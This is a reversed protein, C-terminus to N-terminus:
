VHQLYFIEFFNTLRSSSSILFLINLFIIGTFFGNDDESKLPFNASKWTESNKEPIQLKLFVKLANREESEGNSYFIMSKIEAKFSMKDSTFTSYGLNKYARRGGFWM